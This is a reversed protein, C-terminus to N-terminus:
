VEENIILGSLDKIDKSMWKRIDKSLEISEPIPIQKIVDGSEKDIVKVIIINLEEEVELSINRQAYLEAKLAGALAEKVKRDKGTEKQPISGNNKQRIVYDAKQSEDQTTKIETININDSIIM